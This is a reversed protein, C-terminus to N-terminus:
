HKSIIKISTLPKDLMSLDISQIESLDDKIYEPVQDIENIAALMDAENMIEDDDPVFDSILVALEVDSQEYDHETNKEFDPKIFDAAPKADELSYDHNQDGAALSDLAALEEDSPPESAGDEYKTTAITTAHTSRMLFGM